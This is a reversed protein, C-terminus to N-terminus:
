LDANATERRPSSHRQRYYKLGPLFFSLGSLLGSLSIAINPFGLDPLAALVPVSLFLIAAPIYFLGSLIAAKVTFVAGSVVGLLPVLTLTPLRLQMEVVFLLTNAVMSAGWVHAIQREVFTIPGSRHRLSWFVAAWTWFGINWVALYPLHSTVGRWQMVNTIFCLVIIVLGNCMWLLGWNELVPAHHTERLMRSLLQRMSGSRAAIPESALYASLDDALEVASPYRLDPPKQLCKMAIMELDADVSPNLLRIPLPDQELVLLITDVPTPAQFPPRGTLAHYLVAGLGYVDSARGVEGRRGAAQEPAMYSPTGVIAGTRTINGTSEIRKALGFDTLMPRGDADILINSPKLDRHLVGQQHAAAIAQCVPLLMTAADRSSLPGEAIRRSLTTGEVLKMSFYPQGDVEGVEYVPVINPHDLRAASRAEARFRAIESASALEGRLIMKIAVIRGLSIQRAKYVVGMGGRGIEELLEYDGFQRPPLAIKNAPLPVGAAGNSSSTQGPLVLNEALVAAAWLQRVEDALEPTSATMADVDIERGARVAALMDDLIELIRRDREEAFDATADLPPLRDASSPEM